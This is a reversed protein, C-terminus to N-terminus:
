DIEDATAPPHAYYVAAQEGSQPSRQLRCRPNQLRLRVQGKQPSVSAGLGAIPQAFCNVGYRTQYLLFPFTVRRLTRRIDKPTGSRARPTLHRPASFVAFRFPLSQM